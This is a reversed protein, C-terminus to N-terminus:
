GHATEPAVAVLHALGRDRYVCPRGNEAVTVDNGHGIVTRRGSRAAIRAVACLLAAQADGLLPVGM